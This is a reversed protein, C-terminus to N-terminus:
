VGRNLSVEVRMRVENFKWPTNRALPPVLCEITQNNIYKGIVIVEGDANTGNPLIYDEYYFQCQVM